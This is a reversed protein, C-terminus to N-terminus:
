YKDFNTNLIKTDKIKKNFENLIINFIEEAKAYCKNAEDISIEIFSEGPYRTDFYYDTLDTLDILYNNLNYINTTRALKKLSHSKLVSVDELFVLETIYHKLIKELAQQCLSPVNQPAINILHKAAEMDNKALSLYNNMKM